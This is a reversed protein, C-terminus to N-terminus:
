SCEKYNIGTKIRYPINSFLDKLKTLDDNKHFDILFADYTYLVLKSQQTYLYNNIESIISANFETELSQLIYNLVKVDTLGEINLKRNFLVTQLTQGKYENYLYTTLNKVKAFFDIHLYKEDIGGYIQKFTEDKTNIGDPYYRGFYAYIDPDPWSYGVVCSLLYIHFAKLDFEVLLGDNGFRSVFRSRSEDNKPIAAYNIGKYHNSPRGTLTYPNYETYEYGNTTFLGNREIIALNDQLKTYENLPEDSGNLRNYSIMFEDKLNKCHQIQLMIPICDNLYKVKKFTNYYNRIIQPQQHKQFTVKELWVLMKAEYGSIDPSLYKKNYIFDNPQTIPLQGKIADNHNINIIYEQHTQLSYCYIFSVKNLSWHKRNDSLVPIFLTDETNIRETVFKM